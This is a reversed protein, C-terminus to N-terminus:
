GTSWSRPKKMGAIKCAQQVYGYPFLEFLRNRPAGSRKMYLVADRSSPAVGHEAHWDRIFRIVQWHEETLMIDEQAAFTEAIDENWDSPDVLYGEDGTLAGINLTQATM